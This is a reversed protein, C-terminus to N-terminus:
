RSGPPTLSESDLAGGAIFLRKADGGEGRGTITAVGVMMMMGRREGFVTVVRPALPHAVVTFLCRDRFSPVSFINIKKKKKKADCGGVRACM